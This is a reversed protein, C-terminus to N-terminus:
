RECATGDNDRDLRSHNTWYVSKAAKSYAPMGYGQRVQKLAAKRSKSVGHKYDKALKTCSSYYKGSGAAHASAATAIVASPAAVVLAVLIGIARIKMVLLTVGARADGRGNEPIPSLLGSDAM